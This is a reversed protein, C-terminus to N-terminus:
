KVHVITVIENERKQKIKTGSNETENFGPLNKGKKFNTSNETVHLSM